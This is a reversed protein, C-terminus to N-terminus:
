IGLITRWGPYFFTQLTKLYHMADEKSFQHIVVEFIATVYASILLHLEEPRIEKVSVGRRRAEELFALTEKQEMVVFDHVFNAYRTGESCCILLRFAEFNGYILELFVNTDKGDDWMADLAGKGLLAYDRDKFYDYYAHFEKLVPVVLAAFMDEKDAFHRYLGASTLGAQAAIVRISAREFGKELFEKKAAQIIREHTATKNKPM